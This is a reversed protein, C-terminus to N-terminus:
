LCFWNACVCPYIILLRSISRSVTDFLLSSLEELSSRSSRKSDSCIITGVPSHYDFSNLHVNVFHSMNWQNRISRESGDLHFELWIVEHIKHHLRVNEIVGVGITVISGDVPFSSNSNDRRSQCSIPPVSPPRKRARCKPWRRRCTVPTCVGLRSCSFSSLM